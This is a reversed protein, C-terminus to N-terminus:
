AAHDYADKQLDSPSFEFVASVSLPNGFQDTTSATVERAWRNLPKVFVAAFPGANFQSGKGFGSPASTGPPFGFCEDAAIQRLFAHNNM